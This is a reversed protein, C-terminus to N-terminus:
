WWNNWELRVAAFWGLTVLTVVGGTVVQRWEPAVYSHLWRVMVVSMLLWWGFSILIALIFAVRHNM